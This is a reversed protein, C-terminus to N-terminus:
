GGPRDGAASSRRLEDLLRAGKDATFGLADFWRVLGDRDLLVVSAGESGRDGLFRRMTDGEGCLTVVQPWLVRPVGRRRGNDISGSPARYALPTTTPVEYVTLRPASAQLFTLWRAIDEQTARQYAILLVAPAGALEQPLRVSEGNLASGRVSPLRRGVPSLHKDAHISMSAHSRRGDAQM